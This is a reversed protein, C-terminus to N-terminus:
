GSREGAIRELIEALSGSEIDSVDVGYVARIKEVLSSTGAEPSLDKLSTEDSVWAWELELVKHFFDRQLEPHRNVREQSAFELPVSTGPRPLPIGDQLREAKFSAFADALAAKAQEPSDGGGSLAWWNIIQALYAETKADPFATALDFDLPQNKRIRIPYDGVSWDRKLFSLCYKWLCIAAESANNFSPWAM